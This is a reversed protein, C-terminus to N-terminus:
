FNSILNEYIEYANKINLKQSLKGNGLFVFGYDCVAEVIDKEHSIFIITKNKNKLEIIKKICRLKFDSDSVAMIEDCILIDFELITMVSFYLKTIMGSSYKKVPTDLFDQLGAFAAIEDIKLILEKRKAKMISGIFFINERGTAEIQIGANMHLMPILSGKVIVEGNDYGTIKALIKSLTSKGSGNKGLIAVAEGKKIEMNIDKLAYIEKNPNEIKKFKNSLLKYALSKFGFNGLYYKKSLNKVQVAFNSM